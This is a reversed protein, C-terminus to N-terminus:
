LAARWILFALAFNVVVALGLSIGSAAAYIFADREAKRARAGPDEKAVFAEALPDEPDVPPDLKLLDRAIRASLARRWLRRYLLFFALGPPAFPLVPSLGALFILASLTSFISTRALLLIASIAVLGLAMSIPTLYNLYENPARGGAILRSLLREEGGEHCIAVLTEDRDDVFVPRGEELVLIGAVLISTGEALSSLSKWKIRGVAGAEASGEGSAPALVYLPVRSLDALASVERGRVWVRDAGEIAEISGQLRFSGVRTRGEREADALDRYRLWPISGLRVLLLRFRRWQGRLAFAGVVPVLLYFVIAAAIAAYVPLLV